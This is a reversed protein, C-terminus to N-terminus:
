IFPVCRGESGDWRDSDHQDAGRPHSVKSPVPCMHCGRVGSSIALRAVGNRERAGLFQDSIKETALLTPRDPDAIDLLTIATLASHLPAPVSPWRGYVGSIVLARDAGLLLLEPDGQYPEYM